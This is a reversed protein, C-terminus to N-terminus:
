RAGFNVDVRLESHVNRILITACKLDIPSRVSASVLPLCCKREDSNRYSDFMFVHCCLLVCARVRVLSRVHRIVTPSTRYIPPRRYISTMLRRAWSSAKRSIPVFCFCSLVIPSSSAVRSDFQFLSGNYTYFIERTARRWGCGITDAHTSVDFRESHDSM